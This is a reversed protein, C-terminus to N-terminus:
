IVCSILKVYPSPVFRSRGLELALTTLICCLALSDPDFLFVKKAALVCKHTKRPLVFARESSVCM